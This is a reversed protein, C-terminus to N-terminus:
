PMEFEDLVDFGAVLGNDADLARVRVRDAEVQFRVVTNRDGNGAAGCDIQWIGDAEDPFQAPDNAAAGAPDRVRLRSYVHTHGVLAARVKDRHAVLMNWFADRDAPCANFSDGDHGGRPFAPEHFAVFVHSAAVASEIAAEVWARGGAGFCGDDGWPSTYQDVVIFRVNKWDLWYNADDPAHRELGPQAPLIAGTVYVRELSNEFDHNGLAAVYAAMTPDGRFIEGWLLYNVSNTDIDGPVVLLEAHDFSPPPNRTLDRMERLANRWTLFNNRPDAAAVFSWPAYTDADGDEPAGAEADDDAAGDEEGSADPDGDAGVTDGPEANGDGDSETGDPDGDDAGGSGDDADGAGDDERAAGGGSCAALLALLVVLSGTGAVKRM